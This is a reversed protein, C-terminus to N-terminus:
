PMPVGAARMAASLSWVEVVLEHWPQITAMDLAMPAPAAARLARAASLGAQADLLRQSLAARGAASLVRDPCHALLLLGRAFTEEFDALLPNLVQDLLQGPEPDGARSDDPAEPRPPEEPSSDSRTAM